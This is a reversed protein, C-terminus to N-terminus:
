CKRGRRMRKDDHWRVSGGTKYATGPMAMSMGELPLKGQREKTIPHTKPTIAKSSPPRGLRTFLNKTM